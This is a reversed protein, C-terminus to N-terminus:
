NKNFTDDNESRGKGMEEKLAAELNMFLERVHSIHGKDEKVKLWANYLSDKHKAETELLIQSQKQAQTSSM